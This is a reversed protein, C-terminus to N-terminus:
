SPGQPIHFPFMSISKFQTGYYPTQFLEKKHFFTESSPGKYLREYADHNHQSYMIIFLIQVFLEIPIFFIEFNKEVYDRFIDLFQERKCEMM